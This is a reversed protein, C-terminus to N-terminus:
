LNFNILFNLFSSTIHYIKCYYSCTMSLKCFIISRSKILFVAVFGAINRLPGDPPFIKEFWGAGLTYFNIASLIGAVLALLGFFELLLGKFLGLLIFFLFIIIIIFDVVTMQFRADSNIPTTLGSNHFIKSILKM